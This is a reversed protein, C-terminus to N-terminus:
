CGGRGGWCEVCKSMWSMVLCGGDGVGWGGGVGRVLGKGKRIVGGVGYNGGRSDGGELVRVCGREEFGVGEICGEWEGGVGGGGGGVGEGKM